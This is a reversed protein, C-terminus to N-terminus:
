IHLDKDRLTNALVPYQNARRDCPPPVVAGNPSAPVVNGNLCQPVAANTVPLIVTADILPGPYASIDQTNRNILEMEEDSSKEEESSSFEITHDSWNSNSRNGLQRSPLYTPKLETPFLVSTHKAKCKYKRSDESAKKSVIYRDSDWLDCASCFNFTPYKIKRDRGYNSCRIGRSRTTMPSAAELNVCDNDEEDSSDDQGRPTRRRLKGNPRRGPIAGRKRGARGMPARTSAFKGGSWTVM